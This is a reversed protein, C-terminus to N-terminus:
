ELVCPILFHKNTQYSYFMSPGFSKANFFLSSNQIKLEGDNESQFSKHEFYPQVIYNEWDKIKAWDRTDKEGNVVVLYNSYCHMLIWKETSNLLFDQDQQSSLTFTPILFPKLFKYEEQDMYSAIIEESFLIAFLRKDHILITTRVDNICRGSAIIARLVASDFMKLEERDLNLYFQRGVKGKAIIQRDELKLENPSTSIIEFNFRKLEKKLIKAEPSDNGTTIFFIPDDCDYRNSIDSIINQDCAVSRWKQNSTNSLKYISSNLYHSTLWGEIPSSSHVQNIKPQGSADYVFNLAYMGLEYPTGECMYLIELLKKDLQIIKQLSYDRIYNYVIKVFLENLLKSLTKLSELYEQDVKIISKSFSNNILLEEPYNKLLAFLKENSINEISISLKSTISAFNERDTM